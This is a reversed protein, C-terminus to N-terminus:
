KRSKDEDSPTRINFTGGDRHLVEQPFNPLTLTLMQVVLVTGAHIGFPRLQSGEEDLKSATGIQEGIELYQASTAALSSPIGLFKRPVSQLKVGYCNSERVVQDDSKTSFARRETVLHVVLSEGVFFVNTCM